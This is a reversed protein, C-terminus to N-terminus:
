RPTPELGAAPQPRPLTLEEQAAEEGLYSRVVGYMMAPTIAHPDIEAGDQLRHTLLQMISGIAVTSASDLIEGQASREDRGRDIMQACFGFVEERRVRPMESKMKLVELMGFGVLARNEVMWDATAYAASRLAPRWECHRNFASGVHREFAAIFREYVDLACADLDAFCHDFQVRTIGARRVVDEVTVNEYGREYFEEVVAVSLPDGYPDPEPPPPLEVPDITRICDSTQVSM